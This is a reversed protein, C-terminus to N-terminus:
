PFETQLPLLHASAGIKSFSAELAVSLKHQYNRSRSHMRSEDLMLTGGGGQISSSVIDSAIGDNLGPSSFLGCLGRAVCYMAYPPGGIASFAALTITRVKYKPSESHMLFKM